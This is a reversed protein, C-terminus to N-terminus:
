STRAGRSRGSGSCRRGPERREPPASAESPPPTSGAPCAGRPVEIPSAPYAEILGVEPGAARVRRAYDATYRALDGVREPGVAGRGVTSFLPEDMVVVAVEGGGNRVREILSLTLDTLGKGEVDYEKLAGTELHIPLGEERLNEFVGADVLNGYTNGACGGYQNVSDAHVNDGYVKFATLRRRLPSGRRRRAFYTQTTPVVSIRGSPSEAFM